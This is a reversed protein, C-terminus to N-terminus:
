RSPWVIPGDKGFNNSVLVLDFIDVIGDHNLDAVTDHEKYHSAIYTLDFINIVNDQKVDGIPLTVTSLDSAISDRQAVLHNTHIAQLCQYVHNSLSVIEFYGNADTVAAIVGEVPMSSVNVMSSCTQESLFIQTGSHDTQAQLLVTGSIKDANASTVEIIGNIPNHKIPGSGPDSLKTQKFVINSLGEKKTHWTINAISGSVDIPISPAHLLVTFEIIGTNNDVSNRVVLPSKGDFLDGVGIQINPTNPDSDMVEVINPDFTLELEVGYLNPISEVMVKTVDTNGTPIKLPSPDIYVTTPPSPEVFTSLQTQRTFAGLCSNGFANVKLTYSGPILTDNYTGQYEGNGVPYLTITTTSLVNQQRLGSLSSLIVPVEQEQSIIVNEELVDKVAAYSFNPPIVEATVTANDITGRCFPLNMNAQVTIPNGVHYQNQTFKVDLNLDSQALVSLMYSEDSTTIKDGTINIKWQGSEPIEIHFVKYTEEKILEVSATSSTMTPIVVDGNPKILTLGLNNNENSWALSIIVKRADFDITIDHEVQEGQSISKSFTATREFDFALEFITQYLEYLEFLNNVFSQSINIFLYRGDTQNAIDKMLTQDADSGLAITHVVVDSAIVKPLIDEAMPSTNERGDSLLLIAQVPTTEQLVQELAEDLGSGISTGGGANITGIANIADLRTGLGDISQIPFNTQAYNNYSTVAVKNRKPTLAVFLSSASRAAIIKEGGMSGSRDISLAIQSPQEGFYQGIADSIAQAFDQSNNQLKTVDDNSTNDIFALEILAAPADMDHIYLKTYDVGCQEINTEPFDGRKHLKLHSSVQKSLLKGLRKSDSSTDKGTTYCSETGTGGGANVHISVVINSNHENARKAAESLEFGHEDGTRTMFVVAGQGELLNKLRNAVDLTIDKEKMGNATAGTDIVGNNEWGHGPDLTIQKGTLVGDAYTIFNPPAEISVISLIMLMTLISIKGIFKKFNAYNLLPKM